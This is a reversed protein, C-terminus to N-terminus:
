GEMCHVPCNPNPTFLKSSWPGKCTCKSAGKELTGCEESYRMYREVKSRKPERSNRLDLGLMSAVGLLDNLEEQLRQRNTRTDGPQTEDAGFRLTKMVRQGVEDCEEALCILLYQERDVPKM